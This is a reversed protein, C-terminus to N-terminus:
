LVKCEVINRNIRNGNEPVIPFNKVKCEVINRNISHASDDWSGTVNDKCEVINRNIRSGYMVTATTTCDKVNWLTEILVCYISHSSLVEKPDKCEVINRNICLFGPLHLTRFRGEKCEVINRNIGAYGM